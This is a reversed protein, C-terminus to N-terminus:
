WSAPVNSKNERKCLSYMAPTWGVSMFCVVAGVVLVLLLGGGSSSCRSCGGSGVRRRIWGICRSGDSIRICSVRVAVMSELLRRRDRGVVCVAAGDRAAVALRKLLLALRKDLGLFLVLFLELLGILVVLDKEIHATFPFHSLNM